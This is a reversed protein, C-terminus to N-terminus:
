PPATSENNDNTFPATQKPVALEPIAQEGGHSIAPPLAVEPLRPERKPVLSAGGYLLGIAILWSGLIRGFIEFRVNRLARLTLTVASVIWFAILVPTWTYAPAHLSPDTLKITLGLMAGLIAASVPATGPRWRAGVVLAAGAAVYSLPGTLSLHMAAGPVGDLARLLRDEVYLGGGIGLAFLALSSILGGAGLLAFAVGMGILPLVRAPALTDTLIWRALASQKALLLTTALAAAGLAAVVPGSWPLAPRTM